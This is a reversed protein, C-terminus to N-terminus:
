SAPLLAHTDVASVVSKAVWGVSPVWTRFGFFVDTLLQCWMYLGLSAAPDRLLDTDGGTDSGPTSQAASAGRLSAMAGDLGVLSATPAVSQSSSSAQSVGPTQLDQSHESGHESGAGEFNSPTFAAHTCCCFVRRTTHFLLCNACSHRHRWMYPKLKM